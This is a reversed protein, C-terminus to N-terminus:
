GRESAPYRRSRRHRRSRRAAASTTRTRRGRPTSRWGPASSGAPPPAPEAMIRPGSRTQTCDNGHRRADPCGRNGGPRVAPDFRHGRAEDDSSEGGQFRCPAPQCPEDGSGRDGTTHKRQKGPLKRDGFCSTEAGAKQTGPQSGARNEGRSHVHDRAHRALEVVLSELQHQRRRHRASRVVGPLEDPERADGHEPSNGARGGEHPARRRHLDSDPRHGRPRSSRM